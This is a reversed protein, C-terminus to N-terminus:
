ANYEATRHMEEHEDIPVYCSAPWTYVEGARIRATITRDMKIGLKGNWSDYTLTGTAGEAKKPSVGTLRVRTGEGLKTVLRARKLGLAEKRQRIAAGIDGLVDDYEGDTIGDCIADYSYPM